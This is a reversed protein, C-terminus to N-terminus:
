AWKSCEMIEETVFGITFSAGGHNSVHLVAGYADTLDKVTALGIGHSSRSKTTYFRDFLRPISSEKIGPGSDTVRLWVRQMDDACLREPIEEPRTATLEINIMGAKQMADSANIMLNMLIQTIDETAGHWWKTRDLTCVFEISVRSPMLLRTFQISSDVAKEIDIPHKEGGGNRAFGMIRKVLSRGRASMEDLSNLKVCQDDTLGPSERLLDTYAEIGHLINNLDHAIGNSFQGLLEMRNSRASKDHLQRIATIDSLEVLTCPMRDWVVESTRVAYIVPLCEDGHSILVEAVENIPLLDTGVVGIERLQEVLEARHQTGFTQKAASNMNVVDVGSLILLNSQADTYVAEFNKLSRQKDELALRMTDNADIYRDLLNIFSRSLEGVEKTGYERFRTAQLDEVESLRKAQLTLEEFSRLLKTDVFFYVGIALIIWSLLAAFFSLPATEVFANKVHQRTYINIACRADLPSFPLISLNGHMMSSLEFPCYDPLAQSGSMWYYNQRADDMACESSCANLKGEEVLFRNMDLGLIVRAQSLTNKSASLVPTSVLYLGKDPAPMYFGAQDVHADSMIRECIAGFGDAAIGLSGTQSSFLLRRERNVVMMMDVHLNEALDHSIGLGGLKPQGDAPASEVLEYMEDRRAYDRATALMTKFRSQALKNLNVLTSNHGMEELHAVTPLWLSTM